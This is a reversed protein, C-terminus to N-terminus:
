AHLYVSRTRQTLQSMTTLYFKYADLIAASVLTIYRRGITTILLTLNQTM